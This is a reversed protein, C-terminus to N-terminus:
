KLVRIKPSIVHPGKQQVVCMLVCTVLAILNL